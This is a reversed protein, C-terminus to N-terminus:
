YLEHGYKAEYEHCAHDRAPEVDPAFGLARMIEMPDKPPPTGLEPTEKTRTDTM